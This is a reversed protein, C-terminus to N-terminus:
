MNFQLGATGVRLHTIEDLASCWDMAERTRPITAERLRGSATSPALQACFGARQPCHM